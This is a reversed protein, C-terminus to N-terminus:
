CARVATYAAGRLGASEGDDAVVMPLRRVGVDRCGKSFSPEFLPWSASMAGGIVVLEPEFRALFPGVAGGLSRLADDLVRIAASSGARAREAIEKVDADSDGTAVCYADRIARRSVVDELPRGDILLHHVSGEPPVGPGEWVVAGDVVFGSGIGTGLTLGACRRTGTLAGGIWEGLVFADADNVFSFSTPPPAILEALRAGIDVGRLVDFKGVGEYWAVGNAYDFPAPIAIGWDRGVSEPWSDDSAHLPDRHLLNAVETITAVIGDADADDVFSRRVRPAVETSMSRADILAGTVHTGGVELVPVSSRVNNDARM